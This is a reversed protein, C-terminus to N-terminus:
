ELTLSTDTVQVTGSTQTGLGIRVFLTDSDERIPVELQYTELGCTGVFDRKLYDSGYQAGVGKAGTVSILVGSNGRESRAATVGDFALTVQFYARTYKGKPIELYQSLALPAAAPISRKLTVGDKGAEVSAGESLSYNWGIPDGYSSQSFDGNRLLNRSPIPLLTYHFRKQFSQGPKGGLTEKRFNEGARTIEVEIGYLDRYPLDSLPISIEMTYGDATRTVKRTAKTNANRTAFVETGDAAPLVSFAYQYSKFSDQELNQVPDPDFFVEVCSGVWLNKGPAAKPAKELVRCFLNLSGDKESVDITSGQPLTWHAPLVSARESILKVEPPIKESFNRLLLSNFLIRNRFSFHLKRGAFEVEAECPLGTLNHGELYLDRGVRRAFLAVSRGLEFKSEQLLCHVEDPTGTVYYPEFKLQLKAEQTRDNGYLDLVRCGRKEGPIWTSGSPRFDYLFGLARKGDRSRFMGARVKEGLDIKGCPFTMDKLLFSLANLAAANENLSVLDVNNQSRNWFSEWALSPAAVVGHFLGDLYHRLTENAGFQSKLQYHNVQKRYATQLYYCETNWLPKNRTLKRISAACEGYRNYVGNLYDLGTNYPHFAIGDLDNVYNPDVENLKECWRVVNLGFDGTVDNGLVVCDPNYKKLFANAFRLYRIYDEAMWVGVSPENFIEWIHVRDGWTKTIFDLYREFVPMPPTVPDLEKRGSKGIHKTLYEPFTCTGYKLSNELAKGNFFAMSGGVVFVPEIRNQVLQDIDAELITRDFKDEAYEVKRWDGWIRVMNVGSRALLRYPRALGNQLLAMNRYEGSAVDTASIGGNCGLGRGPAGSEHAVSPHFVLFPSEVGALKWGKQRFESVFAGYESASFAVNGSYVNESERMLVVPFTKWESRDVSRLLALDGRVSDSKAGPLEARVALQVTDGPAYVQDRRDPIVAFEGNFPTEGDTYEVRFNDFYLTNPTDSQPIQPTCIWVAYFCSYPKVQFTQSFHRWSESPRFSFGTLLPYYSDCDEDANCRFGISYNNESHLKGDEGPGMKVDFSITVNGARKLYFDALEIRYRSTGSFGPIEMCKGPNGGDATRVSYIKEPQKVAMHKDQLHTYYSYGPAGRGTIGLEMGSNLNLLEGGYAGFALVSCFLSWFFFRM